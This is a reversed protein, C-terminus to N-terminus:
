PTLDFQARGSQPDFPASWHEHVVKWRGDIRRFGVTARMWSFRETGDDAKYGCHVLCHYIAVDDGAVVSPDHHEFIMSGPCMKLCADWHARYQEVGTFRLRGIADYAVIDPAYHRTIGDLDGARVAKLYDDVLTEIETQARAINEATAM